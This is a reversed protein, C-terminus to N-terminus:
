KKIAKLFIDKLEKDLPKNLVYYLFTEAFSEEVNKRGYNTPGLINMHQRNKTTIIIDNENGVIYDKASNILEDKEIDYWKSVKAIAAFIDNLGKYKLWFLLKTKEDKTYHKYQWLVNKKFNQDNIGYKYLSYMLNGLKKFINRRDNATIIVKNVEVGKKYDYRESSTMFKYWYRHGIEHIITETAFENGKSYDLINYRLAISDLEHAYTAGAHGVNQVLIKGYILFDFDKKLINVAKQLFYVIKDKSEQNINNYFVLNFNDVKNDDKIHLKAYKILEYLLEHEAGHRDTLISLKIDDRLKLFLNFCKKRLTNPLIDIFNNYTKFINRKGGDRKIKSSIIRYDFYTLVNRCFNINLRAETLEKLTKLHENFNIM